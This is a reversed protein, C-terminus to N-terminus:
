ETAARACAEINRRGGIEARMATSARRRRTTPARSAVARAAREMVVRRAGGLPIRRPPSARACSFADFLKACARARVRQRTMTVTAIAHVRARRLATKSETSCSTVFMGVILEVALASLQTLARIERGRDHSANQARLKTRASRARSTINLERRCSSMVVHREGIATACRRRRRTAGCRGERARAHPFRVGGRRAVAARARAAGHLRFHGGRACNSRWYGCARARKCRGRRPRRM